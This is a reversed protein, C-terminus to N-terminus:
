VKDANSHVGNTPSYFNGPAIREVFGTCVTRYRYLYLLYNLVYADNCITLKDSQAKEM